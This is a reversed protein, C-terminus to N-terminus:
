TLENSTIFNEMSEASGFTKKEKAVSQNGNLNKICFFTQDNRPIGNVWSFWTLSLVSVPVNAPLYRMIVPLYLKYNLITQM